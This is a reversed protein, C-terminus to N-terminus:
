LCQLSERTDAGTTPNTGKADERECLLIQTKTPIQADTFDANEITAADLVSKSFYAGVAITNKLSAEDMSTDELSAGRIDANTFDTKVLSKQPVYYYM